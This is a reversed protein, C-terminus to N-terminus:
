KSYSDAINAAVPVRTKKGQYTMLMLAIWAIVWIIWLIPMMFLNVFPIRLFVIMLINIFGFVVISQIAHFRVTKDEKEIILFIIGTVWAGLYCLLGAVNTQLGTSSKSSNPSNPSVPNSQQTSGDQKAGCNPCFGAGGQMEKGCNKCFM